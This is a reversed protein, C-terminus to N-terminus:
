QTPVVLIPNSLAERALIKGVVEFHFNVQLFFEKQKICFRRALDSLEFKKTLVEGPALRRSAVVDRGYDSSVCQPIRDGDADWVVIEAGGAGPQWQIIPFPIDISEYPSNKLTLVINKGDSKISVRVDYVRTPNASSVENGLVPEPFYIMCILIHAVFRGAMQM